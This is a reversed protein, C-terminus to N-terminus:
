SGKAALWKDEFDKPSVYDLSSHLRVGNYFMEIYDVIDRTAEERTQYHRLSIRDTKLSAFFSEVVANDYPDGKRSMSGTIGADALMQQFDFSAYQSGRDTHFVLGPAPRRRWLAMEFARMVLASNMRRNLAWGVVRRSFLDLIVALYLWGEATWIYTIDGAWALDPSAVAFDRALINPSVPLSHRSSTTAKWKRKKRVSLGALCMLRRARSRSCAHGRAQLARALRRSGYTAGSQLFLERVIPLLRRDDRERESQDAATWGYFGSRSVKMTRCLLTLSYNAKEAAVFRYRM